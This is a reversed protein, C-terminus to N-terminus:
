LPLIDITMATGLFRWWGSIGSYLNKYHFEQLSSSLTFSYLLLLTDSLKERVQMRQWDAPMSRAYRHKISGELKGRNHSLWCKRCFFISTIGEFVSFLYYLNCKKTTFLIVRERTHATESEFFSTGHLLISLIINNSCQMLLKFLFLAGLKKLFYNRLRLVLIYLLIFWPLTKSKSM